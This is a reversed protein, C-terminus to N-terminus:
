AARDGLYDELLRIDHVDKHRDLGHLTLIGSGSLVWQGEPLALEGLIRELRERDRLTTPNM